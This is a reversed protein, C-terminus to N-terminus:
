SSSRPPWCASASSPVSPRWQEVHDLVEASFRRAYHEGAGAVGTALIGRELPTAAVVGMEFRGAAPFIRELAVQSLLSYADPVVAMEFEGTEVYPANDVPSNSAVGVRGVVGETQLKRLAALAGGSGMVQAFADAPPDQVYLLEIRQTDLRTLNGEVSRM